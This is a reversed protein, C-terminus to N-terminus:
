LISAILDASEVIGEDHAQEFSKIPGVRRGKSTFAVRDERRVYVVRKRTMDRDRKINVVFLDDEDKFVDKRSGRSDCLLVGEEKRIIEARVGTRQPTRMVDEKAKEYAEQTTYYHKTGRSNILHEVRLGNEGLYDVMVENDGYIRTLNEELIKQRNQRAICKNSGKHSGLGYKNIEKGCEPCETNRDVPSTTNMQLRAGGGSM